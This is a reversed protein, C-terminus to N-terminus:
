ALRVSQDLGKDCEANRSQLLTCRHKPTGYVRMEREQRDTKRYDFM